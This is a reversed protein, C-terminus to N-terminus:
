QSSRLPKVQGTAAPVWIEVFHSADHGSHHYVWHNMKNQPSQRCDSKKAKRQIRMKAQGRVAEYVEEVQCRVETWGRQVFSGVRHFVIKASNQHNM